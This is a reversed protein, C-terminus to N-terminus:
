APMLVEAVISPISIMHVPDTKSVRKNGDQKM